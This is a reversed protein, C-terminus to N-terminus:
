LSKATQRDEFKRLPRRLIDWTQMSSDYSSCTCYSYKYFLFIHLSKSFLRAIGTPGHSCIWSRLKDQYTMLLRRYFTRVRFRIGDNISNFVASRPVACCLCFMDNPETRGTWSSAIKQVPKRVSWVTYLAQLSASDAPMNHNLTKALKRAVVFSMGEHKPWTSCCPM